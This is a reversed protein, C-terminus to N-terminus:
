DIKTVKGETPTRLIAIKTGTQIDTQGSAYRLVVHELLVFNETCKDTVTARVEESLLAINVEPKTSSTVNKYM